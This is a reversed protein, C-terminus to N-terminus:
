YFYSHESEKSMAYNITGLDAFCRRGLSGVAYRRYALCPDLHLLM